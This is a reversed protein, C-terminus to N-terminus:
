VKWYDLKLALKVEEWQSVRLYYYALMRIVLMLVVQTLVELKLYMMRTNYQDIKCDTCGIPKTNKLQM